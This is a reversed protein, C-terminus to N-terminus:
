DVQKRGVAPAGPSPPMNVYWDAEAGEGYGAARFLAVSASNEPRVYAHLASARVQARALALGARGIGGGQWPAALYISVEYGDGHPSLRLVGCDAGDCRLISFPARPDALAARMWRVHGDRSPPEPNRAHRRVSPDQQWSFVLDIDAEGARRLEVVRGDGLAVPAIVQLMRQLGRGDCVSFAAESMAALRDDTMQRLADSIQDADVKQVAGAAELADANEQQNEATVLLLTPLGLVAREWASVGGAGICLDAELLIDAMKEPRADSVFRWGQRGTVRERIVDAQPALRGMVVTVAVAPAADEIADLMRGTLNDPDSGGLSILIHKVTLRPQALRRRDAFVPNLLAYEPGCYVEAEEPILSQYDAPQRGLATDLLLDCDHARDVLDDLVLLRADGRRWKAEFDADLGYHDVILLDAQDSRVVTRALEGWADLRAEWASRAPDNGDLACQWGEHMLGEALTACRMVHGM